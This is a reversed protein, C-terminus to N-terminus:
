LEHKALIARAVRVFEPEADFVNGEGSDGTTMFQAEQWWEMVQRALAVGDVQDIANM